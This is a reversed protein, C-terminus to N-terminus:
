SPQRRGGFATAILDRLTARRARQWLTSMTTQGCIWLEAFPGAGRPEVVATRGIVDCAVTAIAAGILVTFLVAVGLPGLQALFPDFM